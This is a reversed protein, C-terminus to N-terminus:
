IRGILRDIMSKITRMQRGSRRHYDPGTYGWWDWCGKPNPWWLGLTVGARTQPYLVVINNREAWRNYGANAYFADGVRESYQECGHFAVHLRCVAGQDCSEPVYLYGVDALSLEDNDPFHLRQDFAVIGEPRDGDPPVMPGYLHEFVAGAADYDCDNLYPPATNGCLGGYDLTVMAHGAGQRDVYLLDTPLLFHAYYDRLANMVTQPVTDDRTGSYLYVRDGSMRQPPDIAGSRAEDEAAQISDAADPPGLFPMWDDFDMCVATARWLNWPYGGGACRYPGAAFIAAGAIESAYAVHYQHAMYGGSSLGSLTVSNPEITLSPLAPAASSLPLWFLAPLTAACALRFLYQM